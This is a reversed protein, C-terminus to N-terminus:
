GTFVDVSHVIMRIDGMFMLTRDQPPFWPINGGLLFHGGGGGWFSIDGGGGGGWWVMQFCAIKKGAASCGITNINNFDISVCHIAWENIHM